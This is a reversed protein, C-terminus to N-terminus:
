PSADDVVAWVQPFAVMQRRAYGPRNNGKRKDEEEALSVRLYVELYDHEYLTGSHADNGGM